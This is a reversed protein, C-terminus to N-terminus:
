ETVRSTAMSLKALGEQIVPHAHDRLWAPLLEKRIEDSWKKEQSRSPPIADIGEQANKVLGPALARIDYTLDVDESFRRIAQYAKSLATGGKFVLHSGVPSAFLTSLAWVVWIDKELLHTPRGSASAAAQLAEAQERASLHFFSEPM